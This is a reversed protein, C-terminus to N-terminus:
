FVGLFSNKLEFSQSALLGDISYFELTYTGKQLTINELPVIDSIPMSNGNLILRTGDTFKKTVGNCVFDGNAALVLGDIDKFVYFIDCEVNKLAKNNLVTYKLQLANAKKHKKTAKIKGSKKQEVTYVEVDAIQVKTAESLEFRLKKSELKEANLESKAIAVEVVLSDNLTKISDISKLLTKNMYRVKSLQVKIRNIEKLSTLDNSDVKKKLLEIEDKSKRLQTRITLLKENAEIFNKTIAINQEQSNNLDQLVIEFETKLAEKESLIEQKFANNEKNAKFLYFGLTGIILLLIVILVIKINKM